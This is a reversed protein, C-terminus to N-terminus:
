RILKKPREGPKRKRRRSSGDEPTTPDEHHAIIDRLITNSVPPHGTQRLYADLLRVRMEINGTANGWLWVFSEAMEKMEVQTKQIAKTIYSLVEDEDLGLDHIEIDLSLALRIMEPIDDSEYAEAAKKFIDHLDEREEEPVDMQDYRDPHTEM